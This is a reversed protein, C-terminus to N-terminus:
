PVSGTGRNITYSFSRSFPLVRNIFQEIWLNVEGITSRPVFVIDGPYLPVDRTKEADGGGLFAQLDVIRLMPRDEPSRRIVIVKAMHADDRFGNALDVAELAGIRGQLDYAGPRAVSGGVYIKASTAETVAVSVVPDRLLRQSRDAVLATIEEVSLGMVDLVGATTVSIRGDPLVLADQNMEPTRLYAITLRDGPGVRYAPVTDVWQAFGEPRQEVPEVSTSTCASLLGALAVIVVLLSATRGGDRRLAM